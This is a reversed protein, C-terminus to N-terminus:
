IPFNNLSPFHERAAVSRKHKLYTRKKMDNEKEPSFSAYSLSFSLDLFSGFIPNQTNEGDM